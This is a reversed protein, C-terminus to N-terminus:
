PPPPDRPLIKQWLTEPLIRTAQLVFLLRDDLKALRDIPVAGDTSLISPLSELGTTDLERVGLVSSVALALTRSGLRLTVFRSVTETDGAGTLRGLHVVPTPRGRIISLGLVYPPTGDLPEVPCPRM